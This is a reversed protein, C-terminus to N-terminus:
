LNLVLHGFYESKMVWSEVRCRVPGITFYMQLLVIIIKKEQCAFVLGVQQDTIM